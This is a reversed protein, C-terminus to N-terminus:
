LNEYRDIFEKMRLLGAVSLAHSIGGAARYPPDPEYLESITGIGHDFVSPKFQEYLMKIFSLGSKGHIRLYGETFHELLWPFAPGNHYALDREIQNGKFESHYNPNKPSLTRVGASTLLEKKVKSLVDKRKEESIPSHPLSAALIQNPRISWDTLKSNSYDALYHKEDSWFIKTFAAPIKEAIPKWQEIFKSDNALEASRIAFMIANYWLANVEVAYGSRPTVPKGDVIADMWTLAVDNEGTEVLGNSNMKIGFRTGDRFGELIQRMEAGYMKWIKTKNGSVKSYKQMARFFWLPADVSNYESQRNGIIVPFLSGNLEKKMSDLVKKCKNHDGLSLTLGPLAMFTDRSFKGFYPFGAILEINDGTTVFFQSAANELSHEFSDRPIRRKKENTFLRKLNSTTAPTTGAAFIISEGKKIDVEFCGPQMLDEHADYGREIEKTYEVSYYWDPKHNYNSPKSIQMFIPTYGNYLKISIGNDVDTYNCNATKNAHTLFHVNRFALFPKFKLKTPSHAEELTYKILIRDEKDLFIQEKKLVVGGVRYTATPIPDLTYDRIYKHGKPNYVGGKYRRIGLNFEAGQQEISVDLNSLLIHPDDDIGPQPTILLGHYKRTNCGVITTCAYAGARNTRLIERSLSYELNVLRSKDFEIFSM